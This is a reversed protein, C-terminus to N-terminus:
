KLYRDIVAEELQQRQWEKFARRREDGLYVERANDPNAELVKIIHFGVPTRVVESIEGAKMRGIVADFEAYMKGKTFYGLDGGKNYTMRDQSYKLAAAAFDLGGRLEALVNEANRRAQEITTTSDSQVARFVIHAARTETTRDIRSVNLKRFEELEAASPTTVSDTVFAFVKRRLLEDRKALRLDQVPQGRSIYADQLKRGPPLRQNEAAIERSIEDESVGVDLRRAQQEILKKDVLLDIVHPAIGSRLASLYQKDRNNGMNAVIRFEREFDDATIADGNVQAVMRKGDSTLPLDNLQLQSIKNFDVTPLGGRVSTSTTAGPGKAPATQTTTRLRQNRRQAVPM